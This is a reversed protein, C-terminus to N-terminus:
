EKRRQEGRRGPAMHLDKHGTRAKIMIGGVKNLGPTAEGKCFMTKRAYAWMPRGAKPPNTILAVPVSSAWPRRVTAAARRTM